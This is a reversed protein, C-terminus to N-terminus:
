RSLTRAVVGINACLNPPVDRSMCNLGEIVRLRPAAAPHSPAVAGPTKAEAEGRHAPADQAFSEAMVGAVLLRSAALWPRRRFTSVFRSSHTINMVPVLPGAPM